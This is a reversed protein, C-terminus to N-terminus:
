SAPPWATSWQCFHWVSEDNPDYMLDRNARIDVPTAAKLNFEKTEPKMESSWGDLVIMTSTTKIVLTHRSSWYVFQCVRQVVQSDHEYLPEFLRQGTESSVLLLGGTPLEFLVPSLYENEHLLALEDRENNTIPSRLESSPLVGVWVRHYEFTLLGAGRGFAEDHVRVYARKLEDDVDIIFHTSRPIYRGTTGFQRVDFASNAQAFAKYRETDVAFSVIIDVIGSVSVGNPETVCVDIVYRLAAVDCQTRPVSPVDGWGEWEPTGRTNHCTAVATKKNTGAAAAAGRSGGDKKGESKRKAPM